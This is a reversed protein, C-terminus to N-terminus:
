RHRLEPCVDNNIMRCQQFPLFLDARAGKGQGAHYQHDYRRVDSDLDVIGRDYHQLTAQLSPFQDFPRDGAIPSLDLLTMLVTRRTSSTFLIIMVPFKQKSEFKLIEGLITRGRNMTAFKQKSELKLGNVLCDAV